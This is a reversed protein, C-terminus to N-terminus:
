RRPCTGVIAADSHMECSVNNHTNCWNAAWLPGHHRACTVITETDEAPQHKRKESGSVIQNAAHDAMSPDTSSYLVDISWAADLQQQATM